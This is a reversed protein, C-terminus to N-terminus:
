RGAGQWHCVAENSYVSYKDGSITRVRYYYTIGKKATKDIFFAGGDIDKRDIRVLRTSPPVGSRESRVVEFGTVADRNQFPFWWNIAIGDQTPMAEVFRPADPRGHLDEAERWTWKLIRFRDPHQRWVYVNGARDLVPGGTHDNGDPYVQFSLSLAGLLKGNSDYKRVEPYMKRISYLFGLKDRSFAGKQNVTYTRDGFDVDAKGSHEGTQTWKIERAKELFGPNLIADITQKDPATIRQLAGNRFYKIKENCEDILAITGDELVAFLDNDNPLSCYGGRPTTGIGMEADGPGWPLALVVQPGLYNYDGEAFAPQPHLLLQLCAVFLGIVACILSRARRSFAQEVGNSPIARM